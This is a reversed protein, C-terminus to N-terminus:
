LEPKSFELQFLQELRSRGYNATDTAERGALNTRISTTFLPLIGVMLILFIASAVLLEVLSYGAAPRRSGNVFSM